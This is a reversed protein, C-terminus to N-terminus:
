AAAHRAARPSRRARYGLARARAVEDDYSLSYRGSNDDDFYQHAEYAIAADDIWPGDPHNRQFGDVSGWEYGAVYIRHRDGTSRIAAVAARSAREWARPGDMGVPENMLGYGAIAPTGGVAAALRRWFDAFASNPLLLSGIPSRLGLPGVGQYYAGYNHVDIVTRLGAAAAADLSTRLHELNEADLPGRPQPQLREWRVPLRILKTGRRALQRLLGARPYIYDVGYTGSSTNTFSSATEDVPTNGFEAGAVNIGRLRASRQAEVVAAQPAAVVPGGESPYILLKYSSQWFDGAAWASVSLRSASAQKFWARALTNWRKDGQAAPNGPWGVEGIFGRAHGDDLWDVFAQLRALTRAHLADRPRSAATAAAPTAVVAICIAVGACVRARRAFSRATAM